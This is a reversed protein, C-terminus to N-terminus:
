PFPPAEAGGFDRSGATQEGRAREAQLRLSLPARSVIIILFAM